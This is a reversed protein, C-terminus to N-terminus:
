DGGVDVDLAGAPPRGELGAFLYRFSEIDRSHRQLVRHLDEMLVFFVNIAMAYTVIIGLKRLAQARRRLQDAPAAAPM